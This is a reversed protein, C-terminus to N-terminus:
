SATSSPYATKKSVIKRGQKPGAKVMECAKTATPPLRDKRLRWNMEVYIVMAFPLHLSSSSRTSNPHTTNAPYLTIAMSQTHSSSLPPSKSILMKCPRTSIYDPKSSKTKRCRHSALSLVGSKVSQKTVCCPRPKFLLFV